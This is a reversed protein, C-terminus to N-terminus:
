AEEYTITFLFGSTNIVDSEAIEAVQLDNRSEMIRVMNNASRGIEAHVSVGSISTFRTEVTGSYQNSGTATSCNFPLGTIQVRGSGGSGKSTLVVVGMITVKRGVKTYTGVRESYGIGSAGTNFNFTPTWTGEEYDHLVSSSAGSGETHSFDIGLGNSMAKFHGDTTIQWRSALAGGSTRSHFTMGGDDKNTTDTGAFGEIRAVETGNWNYSFKGLGQGAGSRNSDYKIHPFFGDGNDTLLLGKNSAAVDIELNDAPATTGLGLRGSSDIRMRETPSSGDSGDNTKFILDGKQDDATGDHSSQIQALTSEEGGSQEGKFTIKGERGGETDEESTNKLILEPTSDTATIDGSIDAATAVLTGVKAGIYGGM